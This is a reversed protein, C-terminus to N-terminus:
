LLFVIETYKNQIKKQMEKSWACFTHNSSKHVARTSLPVATRRGSASRAIACGRERNATRTNVATRYTPQTINFHRIRCTRPFYPLKRNEISKIIANQSWLSAFDPVRPLCPVACLHMCAEYVHVRIFNRSDRVINKPKWTFFGFNGLDRELLIKVAAQNNKSNYITSYITIWLAKHM